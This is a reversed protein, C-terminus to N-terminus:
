TLLSANWWRGVGSARRGFAQRGVILLASILCQAYVLYTHPTYIMSGQGVQYSRDASPNVHSLVFRERAIKWSGGAVRPV